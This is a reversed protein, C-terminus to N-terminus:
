KASEIERVQAIASSIAAASDFWWAPWERSEPGFMSAGYEERMSREPGLQDLLWKSRPTVLSTPCENTETGAIRDIKGSRSKYEAFWV